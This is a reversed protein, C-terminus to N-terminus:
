PTFHIPLKQILFPYKGRSTRPISDVFALSITFENGFREFFGHTIRQEDESSFRETQVIRVVIDGEHDQYLQCEKVNETSSAVLHHIGMFPVLRHTKSIVFDQVRGEISQLLPSQRGCPCQRSTYVAM